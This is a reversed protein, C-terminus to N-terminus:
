MPNVYEAFTAYIHQDRFKNPKVIRPIVELAAWTVEEAGFLRYDTEPQPLWQSCLEACVCPMVTGVVDNDHSVPPMM